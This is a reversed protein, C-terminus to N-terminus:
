SNPKTCYMIFRYISSRQTLPCQGKHWGEGGPNAALNRTGATGRHSALDKHSQPIPYLSIPLAIRICLIFAPFINFRKKYKSSNVKPHHDFTPSVFFPLLGVTGLSFLFLIVTSLTILAQRHNEILYDLSVNPILM